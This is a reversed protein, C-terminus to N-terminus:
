KKKWFHSYDDVKFEDEFYDKEERAKTSKPYQKRLRARKEAESLTAIDLPMQIDPQNYCAPSANEEATYSTKSMLSDGLPPIYHHPSEETRCITKVIIRKPEPYRINITSGDPRVLLVPYLRGYTQRGCRVISTKNSNQQLPTTHINCVTPIITRAAEKWLFRFSFSRVAVALKCYVLM